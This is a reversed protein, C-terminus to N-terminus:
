GRIIEDDQPIAGIAAFQFHTARGSPTDGEIWRTRARRADERRSGNVKPGIGVAGGSTTSRPM